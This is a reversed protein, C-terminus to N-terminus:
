SDRGRRGRGRGRDDERGEDRDRGRDRDGGRDEAEGEVGTPHCAACDRFDTIGEDLHEERIRAPAHEHCGYCTYARFAQSPQRRDQVERGGEEARTHCTGCAIVGGGGHDLPFTHEFEADDWRETDHCAACQAGYRGRHADDRRHCGVCTVPAARFAAVSRVGTHCGACQTRAHRGILHFRLTDHRFASFRDTGEHCDRCVNGWDRVHGAVFEAQYERHCQECTAEAFRFTRRGHCDSCTFTGGGATERHAALSFGLREHPFGEGDFETLGAHPGNHEVHCHLCAAANPLMGHLQATDGIETRIETHCALCRDAMRESGVPPAHCAGCQRALEAHSAVGGIPAGGDRGAHLAGPSAVGGGSALWAAGAAVAAVAAAGLAWRTMSTSIPM